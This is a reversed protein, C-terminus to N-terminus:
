FKRFWQLYPIGFSEIGGESLTGAFGFQFASNESTQFRVGPIILGGLDRNYTVYVNM